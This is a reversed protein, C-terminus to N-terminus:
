PATMRRSVTRWPLGAVGRGTSALQFQVESEGQNCRISASTLSVVGPPRM